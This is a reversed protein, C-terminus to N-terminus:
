VQVLHATLVGATGSAGTYKIRGKVGPVNQWNWAFSAASGAPQANGNVTFEIGAGNPNSIWTGDGRDVELSFSGTPGATYSGTIWLNTGILPFEPYTASAAGAPIVGPNPCDVPGVYKRQSRQRQMSV